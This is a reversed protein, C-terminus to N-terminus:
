LADEAKDIADKYKKVADKFQEDTRKDDGQLLKEQAEAIKEPDGGQAIAEDIATTALQYASGAIDDMLLNGEEDPLGEKVADEIKGVADEMKNAAEKNDPIDLEVLADLLKDMADEVKDGLPTGPNGDLIDSLADYVQQIGEGPSLPTSGEEGSHSHEIVRHTSTDLVYATGFPCTPLGDPFCDTNEIVDTLTTPWSGTNGKYLEIQRNIM